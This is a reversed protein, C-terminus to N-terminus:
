RDPALAGGGVRALRAAAGCPREAIGELGSTVFSAWSGAANCRRLPAVCDGGAAWGPWAHLGGSAADPGNGARDYEEM